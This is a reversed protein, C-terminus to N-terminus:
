MFRRGTPWQELACSWSAARYNERCLFSTEYWIDGCFDRLEKDTYFDAFSAPVPITEKGPIGNQLGRKRGDGEFDFYIKWLGNLDLARRSFTNRPYLMTKM